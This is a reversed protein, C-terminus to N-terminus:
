YSSLIERYEQNEGYQNLLYSDLWDLVSYVHDMTCLLGQFAVGLPEQYGGGIQIQDSPYRFRDGRPDVSHFERVCNEVFDIDLSLWLETPVKLKCETRLTQWLASLNHSKKVAQVEDDSANTNWEKMWRAHFIIYKLQLELYHRFLFLAGLGEIGERMSGTIVCEVLARAARYYGEVFLANIRWGRDGPPWFVKLPPKKIYADITTTEDGVEAIEITDHRDDVDM